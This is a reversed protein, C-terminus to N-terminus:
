NRSYAGNSPDDPNLGASRDVAQLTFIIGIDAAARSESFPYPEGNDSRVIQIRINSIVSQNVNVPFSNVDSIADVHYSQSEQRSSGFLAKYVLQGFRGNVRINDAVDSVVLPVISQAKAIVYSLDIADPPPYTGTYSVSPNNIKPQGVFYRNWVDAELDVTPYRFDSVILNYVSGKPLQINPISCNFDNRSGTVTTAATNISNTTIDIVISDAQNNSM